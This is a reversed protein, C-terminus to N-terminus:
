KIYIYAPNNEPLELDYFGYLGIKSGKSLQLKSNDVYFRLSDTVDLVKHLYEESSLLRLKDIQTEKILQEILDKPGYYAEQILLGKKKTEEIFIERVRRSILRLEQQRTQFKKEFNPKEKTTEKLFGIKSRIKDWFLALCTAGFIFPTMWLADETNLIDLTLLPIGVYFNRIKIRHFIIFPFIKYKM